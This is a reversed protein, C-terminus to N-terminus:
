QLAAPRKDGLARASAWHGVPHAFRPLTCAKCRGNERRDWFRIPVFVHPSVTPTTM